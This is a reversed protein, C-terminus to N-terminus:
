RPNWVDVAPANAVSLEKELAKPFWLEVSSAVPLPRSLILCKLACQSGANLYTTNEFFFVRWGIDFWDFTIKGRTKNKWFYREVKLIPSLIFFRFQQDWTNQGKYLMINREKYIHLKKYSLKKYINNKTYYKDFCNAEFQHLSYHFNIIITWLVVNLLYKKM